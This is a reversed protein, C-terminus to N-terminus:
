ETGESASEHETNIGNRKDLIDKLEEDTLTNILDKEKSHLENLLKIYNVLDTSSGKNLKAQSSEM